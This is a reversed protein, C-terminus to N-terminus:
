GHQFLAQGIPHLPAGPAADTVGLGLLGQPALHRELGDLIAHRAESAMYILVNRCLIADFLGLAEPLELLNVRAFRLLRRLAPHLRPRGNDGVLWPRHRAPVLALPEGLHPGILGQGASRLAPRSIDLGVVEVAVGPVPLGLAIAALSFAEEGTACGASLLRLPRGAARAAHALPPLAAELAALQAPTRFLQTEQVTAADLLAAWGPEELGPAADLPLLHAARRLRAELVPSAVLGALGRLGERAAGIAAESATEIADESATGIADESARGIAANGATGTIAEAAPVIAREAATM